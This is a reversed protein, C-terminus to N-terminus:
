ISNCRGLPGSQLFVFLFLHGMKRCNKKIELSNLQQQVKSTKLNCIEMQGEARLDLVFGPYKARGLGLM